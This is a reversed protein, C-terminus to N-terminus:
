SYNFTAEIYYIQGAEVNIEGRVLEGNLTYTYTEDDLVVKGTNSTIINANSGHIVVLAYGDNVIPKVYIAQNYSKAVDDSEVKTIFDKDYYYEFEVNNYGMFITDLSDLINQKYQVSNNIYYIDNLYVDNYVYYNEDITVEEFESNPLEKVLSEDYSYDFTGSTDIKMMEVENVTNLVNLSIYKMQSDTYGFKMETLMKVNQGTPDDETVTESENNVNTDIIVNIVFEYVGDITNFSFNTDILNEDLGINSVMSDKFSEIFEEYSETLSMDTMDMQDNMGIHELDILKADYTLQNSGQLDGSESFSSEVKHYQYSNEGEKLRWTQDVNKSTSVVEGQQNKSTSVNEIYQFNNDKDYTTVNSTTSSVEGMFLQTQSKVTYDSNQINQINDMSDVLKEYYQDNTLSVSGKGKDPDDDKCGVLGILCAVSLAGVGLKKLFNNMFGGM